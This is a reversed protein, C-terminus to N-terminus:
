KYRRVTYPEEPPGNVRGKGGGKQSGGKGKKGGRQGPMAGFKGKKIMVTIVIYAIISLLMLIFLVIFAVLATQGGSLAGGNLVEPSPSPSMSIDPEASATPTPTATDTQAGAGVTIALPSSTATTDGSKAQFTFTENASVNVTYKIQNSAGPQLGSITGVSNNRGVDTIYVAELAATGTNTVEVTISATGAQSLNAQDTTATISLGGTGESVAVTVGDTTMRDTNGNTDGYSVQFTYTANSSPTHTFTKTTSEGAALSGITASLGHTDDQLQINRLAVNGSNRVTVNLTVSQGKTVQSANASVQVSIGMRSPAQTPAQTPAETVSADQRITFSGSLTKSAGGETYTVTYSQAKGVQSASIPIALIASDGGGQYVAAISGTVGNCSVQINEVSEEPSSSSLHVIVELTVTGGSAPLRGPTCIAEASVYTDPAALAAAPFMAILLLVGLLFAAIRKM